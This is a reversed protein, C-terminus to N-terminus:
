LADEALATALARHVAVASHDATGDIELRLLSMAYEIQDRLRANDALLRNMDHASYVRPTGEPWRAPYQERREANM